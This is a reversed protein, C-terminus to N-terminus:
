EVVHVYIDIIDKVSDLLKQTTTKNVNSTMWEKVVMRGYKWVQICQMTLLGNEWENIGGLIWIMCEYCKGDHMTLMIGYM